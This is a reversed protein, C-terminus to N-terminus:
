LRKSNKRYSELNRIIRLLYMVGVMNSIIGIILIPTQFKVLLLSLASLGLIPLIDTVHHACCAIMGVTSTATNAMMINKTGNTKTIERIKKYLGVQLGFGIDLPIIFYWLKELQSLALYWSGTLLRMTLFYFLLLSISGVVGAFIPQTNKTM